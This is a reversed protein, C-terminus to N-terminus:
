GTKILYAKKTYHEIIRIWRNTIGYESVGGFGKPIKESLRIFLLTQTFLM